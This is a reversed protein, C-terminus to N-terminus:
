EKSLTLLVKLIHCNEINSLSVLSDLKLRSSILLLNFEPVAQYWKTGFNRGTWKSDIFIYILSYLIRV